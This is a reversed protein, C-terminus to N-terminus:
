ITASFSRTTSRCIWTCPLKSVSGRRATGSTRTISVHVAEMAVNTGAFSPAFAPDSARTM